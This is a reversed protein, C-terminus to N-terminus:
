SRGYQGDIAEATEMQTIVVVSDDADRAYPEAGGHIRAARRPGWSRIGHPPYRMAAVAGLCEVGVEGDGDGRAGVDGSKM